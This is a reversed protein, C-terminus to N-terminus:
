FSALGPKKSQSFKELTDKAQAIGNLYDILINTDFLPSRPISAEISM